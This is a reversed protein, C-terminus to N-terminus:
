VGIANELVVARLLGMSFGVGYLDYDPMIHEIFDPLETQRHKMLFGSGGFRVVTPDPFLRLYELSKERNQFYICSLYVRDYEFLPATEPIGKILDVSDGRGKHFASLKMLALNPFGKKSDADILLVKKTRPMSYKVVVLVSVCQYPFLSIRKRTVLAILTLRNM